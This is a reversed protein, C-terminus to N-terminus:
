SKVEELIRKYEEATRKSCKLIEMVEKVTLEYVINVNMEMLGKDYLRKLIDERYSSPTQFIVFNLIFLKQLTRSRISGELSHILEEYQKVDIKHKAKGSEAKRGKGM